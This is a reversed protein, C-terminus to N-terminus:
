DPFTTQAFVTNKKKVAQFADFMKLFASCVFLNLYQKVFM